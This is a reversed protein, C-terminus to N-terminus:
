HLSGRVWPPTNVYEPPIGKASASDSQGEGLWESRPVAIVSGRVEHVDYPWGVARDFFRRMVKDHTVLNRALSRAHAVLILDNYSNRKDSKLSLTAYEEAMDGALELVDFSVPLVEVSLDALLRINRDVTRARRHSLNARAFESLSPYMCYNFLISVDEHGIEFHPDFIRNGPDKLRDRSQGGPRRAHEKICKRLQPDDPRPPGYLNWMRPLVPMFRYNWSQPKHLCLLEQVVISSTCSGVLASREEDTGDLAGLFVNTDLLASHRDPLGDPRM